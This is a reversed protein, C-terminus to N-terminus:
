KKSEQVEDILIIAKDKIEEDVDMAKIEEEYTNFNIVNEGLNLSFEKLSNVREKKLDNTLTKFYEEHPIVPIDYAYMLATEADIIASYGDNRKNPSTYSTRAICGPQWFITHSTDHEVKIPKIRDHIHGIVAVDLGELQSLEYVGNGINDRMWNPCGEYAFADHYMGVVKSVGEKKNFPHNLGQGAEGYDYLNYQIGKWVLNTYRGIVNLDELEDFLTYKGEKHIDHNGKLSILPNIFEVEEEGNYVKVDEPFRTELIERIRNLKVVWSTVMRRNTPIKHQIDGALILIKIREDSELTDLISDLIRGSNDAMKDTSSMERDSLHLDSVFWVGEKVKSNDRKINM